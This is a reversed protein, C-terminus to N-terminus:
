KYFSKCYKQVAKENLALHTLDAMPKLGEPWVPEEVRHGGLEVPIVDIDMFNTLDKRNVYQIKQRLKQDGFSLIVKAVGKLVWPLDVIYNNILTGPYYTMVEIKFRFADMNINSLGAGNSDTIVTVGKSGCEVDIKEMTHAIYQRFLLNLESINRENRTKEWQINRGDKDKGYMYAGINEFCERPFYQDSREHVGFEKKWKLTKVLAEYAQDETAYENVYREIQWDDTRVRNVDIEHFLQSDRESEVLFRERIRSVIDESM